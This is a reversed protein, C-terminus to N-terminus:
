PIPATVGAYSITMEMSKGASVTIMRYPLGDADGIWLKQPAPTEGAFSPPLYEFVTAAVGSIAEAGAERCEKLASADPVTEQLMQARLGPNVPVKMWTGAGQDVYMADGVIVMQMTPMDAIAVTQHVAPATALKEFAARVTECADAFAAAPAAALLLSFAAARM